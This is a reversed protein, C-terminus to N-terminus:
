RCGETYKEVWRAAVLLEKPEVFIIHDRQCDVGPTFDCRTPSPCREGAGLEHVHIHPIYSRLFNESTERAKVTATDPAQFERWTARLEECDTLVLLVRDGDIVPRVLDKQAGCLTTHVLYEICRPLIILLEHSGTRPMYLEESQSSFIQYTLFANNTVFSGTKLLM